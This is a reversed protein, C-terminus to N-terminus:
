LSKVEDCLITELLLPTLTYVSTENGKHLMGHPLRSKESTQMQSSFNFGLPTIMMTRYSSSGM